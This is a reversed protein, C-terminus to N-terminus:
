NGRYLASDTVVATNRSLVIKADPDSIQFFCSSFVPDFPQSIYVGGGNHSANNATLNVIAPGSLVIYSSGYLAIGGGDVGSNNTFINNGTFKITSSYAILGPTLNNFVTIGGFEIDAVNQVSITSQVSSNCKEVSQNDHFTCNVFILKLNVDGYYIKAALSVFAYLASFFNGTNDYFTCSDVVVEGASSALWIIYM